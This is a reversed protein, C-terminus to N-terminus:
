SSAHEAGDGKIMVRAAEAITAADIGCSARQVQQSGHEVFHDGIGLRVVRVGTLGEEALLELVASGFGGQLSNEEVTLLRETQGALQIILQRDLPKVFRCNAVAASIGEGELSKAAAVAPWVRNGIALIALDDGERLLEGQGVPLMKFEGDMSVGEVTGRPYRLAIPGGHELATKLMQQLGNEDAPAMLVMNPIHRLYCLDFVGHHTPGDEGVLGGRDMVFTVPLNQLCVDHVIQDYARQLFTSYVAVVPKFGELALGAAFTVAHQECIGVDFFREPYLLCRGDMYLPLAEGFRYELYGSIENTNFV